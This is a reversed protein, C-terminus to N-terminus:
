VASRSIPTGDHDLSPAESSAKTGANQCLSSVGANVADAARPAVSETDDPPPPPPPPPPPELAGPPAPSPDRLEPPPDLPPCNDRGLASLTAPTFEDSAGVGAVTGSGEVITRSAVPRIKSPKM